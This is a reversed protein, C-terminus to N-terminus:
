QGGSREIRVGVRRATIVSEGQQDVYETIVESFYMKGGRKGDKEWSRGDRQMVTLVDGPRLHRHYEFHQEAHLGVSQAAGDAPKDAEATGSPTRGSGRWPQGPQPRLPWDPDFHAAAMTFTPPAIVHGVETQLAYEADLYIPNHDGIARAFQAVHGAEVPFDFSATDKSASHAEM